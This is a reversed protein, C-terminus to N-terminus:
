APRTRHIRTHLLFMSIASISTKPLNLSIRRHSAQPVLLLCPTWRLICPGKLAKNFCSLIHIRAAAWTVSRGHACMPAKADPSDFPRASLAIRGERPMWGTKLRQEGRDGRQFSYSSKSTLSSGDKLTRILHTNLRTCLHFLCARIM